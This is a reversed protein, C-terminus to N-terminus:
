RGGHCLRPLYSLAASPFRVRTMLKSPQPEVTSSGGRSSAMKGSPAWTARAIAALGLRTGRSIGAGSADSHPWGRPTACDPLASPQPGLPRLNLDQRGSLGSARTPLPNGSQEYQTYAMGGLLPGIVWLLGAVWGNLEGAGWRGAPGARGAAVDHRDDLHVTHLAALEWTGVCSNLPRTSGWPWRSGACSWSRAARPQHLVVLLDLLDWDHDPDLRGRGSPASSPV